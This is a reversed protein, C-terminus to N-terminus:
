PYSNAVIVRSWRHDYFKGEAHWLYHCHFAWVGPNDALIRIVIHSFGPITVTDRRMPNDFNWTTGSQGFLGHGWGVIQFNQGSDTNAVIM